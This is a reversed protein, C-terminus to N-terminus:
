RTRRASRIRRAEGAVGLVASTGVLLAGAGLAVARTVHVRRSEVELPAGRPWPLPARRPPAAPIDVVFSGRWARRLRGTLWAEAAAPDGGRAALAAALGPDSLLGAAPAGGSRATFHWRTSLLGARRTLSVDRLLGSPGILEDLIGAADEPRAFRKALRLEAGARGPDLVWRRQWGAAQLDDLRFAGPLEGAGGAVLSAATRDLRVRARVVGAGDDHVVVRVRADIRCGGLVAAALAVAAVPLWGPVRGQRSGPAAPEGALDPRDSGHGVDGNRGADRAGRPRSRM